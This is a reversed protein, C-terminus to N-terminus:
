FDRGGGKEPNPLRRRTIYKGDPDLIIEWAEGKNLYDKQSWKPYDEPRPNDNGDLLAILARISDGHGVLVTHVSGNPQRHAAHTQLEHMMRQQLHPLSENTYTKGTKPDEYVAVEPTYINGGTKNKFDDMSSYRDNMIAPADVDHLLADEEIPSTYGLTQALADASQHARHQDSSVMRTVTIRRSAIVKALDVMQQKGKSTIGVRSSNYADLNYLEKGNDTDGHRALYIISPAVKRVNERIDEYNIGLGRLWDLTKHLIEKQYAIATSRHEIFQKELNWLAHSTDPYRHEEEDLYKFCTTEDFLTGEATRKGLNDALNTIRQEVTLQEFPIGATLIAKTPIMRDGYSPPIGIDKQLRRNVWDNVYQRVPIVLRGWDHGVITVGNAYPNTDIGKEQLAQSLEVVMASAAYTHEWWSLLVDPHAYPAVERLLQFMMGVHRKEAKSAEPFPSNDTFPKAVAVINNYRIRSDQFELARLQKKEEISNPMTNFLNVGGVKM